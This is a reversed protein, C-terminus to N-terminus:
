QLLATLQKDARAGFDILAHNYPFIRALGIHVDVDGFFFLLGVHPSGGSVFGNPQHRMSHQSQFRRDLEDGIVFINFDRRFENAKAFFDEIPFAPWAAPLLDAGTWADACGSLELYCGTDCSMLSAGARADCASEAAM